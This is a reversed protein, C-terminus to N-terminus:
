QPSVLQPEGQEKRIKNENEIVNKEQNDIIMHTPNPFYANRKRIYKKFESFAMDQYAICGNLINLKFNYNLNEEKKKLQYCKYAYAMYAYGRIVESENQNALIDLLEKETAIKVLKGYQLFKDSVRNSEGVIRFELESKQNKLIDLYLLTDLTNLIIRTGSSYTQRSKQTYDTQGILPLKICILFITIFRYLFKIPM